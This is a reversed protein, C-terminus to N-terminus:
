FYQQRILFHCICAVLIQSRRMKKSKKQPYAPSLHHAYRGRRKWHPHRGVELGLGLRELQLLKKTKQVEVKSVEIVAGDASIIKTGKKLDQWPPAASVPYRSSTEPRTKKKKERERERAMETLGATLRFALCFGYQRLQQNM